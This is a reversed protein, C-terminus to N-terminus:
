RQIKIILNLSKLKKHPIIIQLNPHATKTLQEDQSTLQLKPPIQLNFQWTSQHFQMSKQCIRPTLNFGDQSHDRPPLNWLRLSSWFIKPSQSRSVSRATSTCIEITNWTLFEPQCVLNSGGSKWLIIFCRFFGPTYLVQATSRSSGILWLNGIKKMLYRAFSNNTPPQAGVLFM